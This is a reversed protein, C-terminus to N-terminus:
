NVLERFCHTLSMSRGNSWPTRLSKLPRRGGRETGEGRRWELGKAMAAKLASAGARAAVSEPVIWGRWGEGEVPARCSLEGERKVGGSRGAM